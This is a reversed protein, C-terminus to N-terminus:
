MLVLTLIIIGLVGFLTDMHDKFMEGFPRNLEKTSQGCNPCFNGYHLQDCNPCTIIDPLNEMNM